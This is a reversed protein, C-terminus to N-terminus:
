DTTNGCLNGERINVDGETAVGSWNNSSIEVLAVFVDGQGAGVGGADCQGSPAVLEGAGYLFLCGHNPNGNESIVSELPFLSGTRVDPDVNIFVDRERRCIDGM